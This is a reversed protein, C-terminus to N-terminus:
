LRRDTAVRGPDGESEPAEVGTDSRVLGIADGICLLVALGGLGENMFQDCCDGKARGVVLRGGVYMEGKASHANLPRVPIACQLSFLQTSLQLNSRRKWV